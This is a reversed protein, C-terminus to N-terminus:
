FLSVIHDHLIQDDKYQLYSECLLSKMVTIYM